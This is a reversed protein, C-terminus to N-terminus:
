KMRSAVASPLVATAEFTTTIQRVPVSGKVMRVFEFSCGRGM